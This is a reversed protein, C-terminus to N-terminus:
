IIGFDFKFGKNVNLIFSVRIQKKLQPDKSQNISEIASIYCTHKNSKDIFGHSM